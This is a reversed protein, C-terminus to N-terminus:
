YEKKNKIYETYARFAGPIPYKELLQKTSVLIADMDQPCFDSLEDVYVFYGTMHWELHTFIHKASVIPTIRLSHIGADALYRRVEDPTLNGELNLYEYMGALLGGSPRKRIVIRQKDQLLLITREQIKRAKLAKKVPYEMECSDAHAKCIDEWPCEMCKPKGTPLCVGAGLDMLAQNYAGCLHASPLSAYQQAFVAKKTAAESIDRADKESRALVRLVNGDVAPVAKGYAISSIAGATYSGIGPLRLLEEYSDPLVGAYEQMILRAAKQMNRIRSYYGLGEWLKLLREEEAEALAAIDPIERLFREYYDKVAEVRTQQLMIESLWVHYPSPDSRWPLIRKHEAYWNLLKETKEKLYIDSEICMNLKM